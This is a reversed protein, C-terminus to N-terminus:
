NKGEGERGVHVEKDGAFMYFKNKSHYWMRMEKM